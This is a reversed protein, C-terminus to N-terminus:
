PTKFKLFAFNWSVTNNGNRVGKTQWISKLFKVQCFINESIRTNLLNKFLFLSLLFSLLFLSFSLLSFNIQSSFLGLSIKIERFIVFLSSPSAKVTFTVNNAKFMETVFSEFSWRESSPALWKRLHLVFSLLYRYVFFDCIWLNLCM